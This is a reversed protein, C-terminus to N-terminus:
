RQRILARRIIEQSLGTGRRLADLIIGLNSEVGINFVFPHGDLVAPNHGQLNIEIDADGSVGRDATLSLVEFQFNELAKLMLEVSEGGAHLASAAAPSRFRLVGPAEAALRAHRVLFGDAGVTLPIDGSIVGEASVGQVAVTRFLEALDLREVKVTLEHNPRALDFATESIRYIGGAARFGAQEVFAVLPAGPRLQFSVDIFEIPLAPDLRRITLRQGPPTSPALVDDFVVNADLGDFAIEDITFSLDDLELLAQSWIRGDQWRAAGTTAVSGSADRLWDLAPALDAPQRGDPAFDIRNVQVAGDGSARQLDHRATVTALQSGDALYADAVLSLEDAKRAARGAIRLPALLAPRRLDRLTGLEFSARADQNVGEINLTVSIDELALQHAAIEIGANAIELEGRYPGAPGATGATGSLRVTSPQVRVVLPDGTAQRVHAEFAGATFAVSAAYAASRDARDLSAAGLALRLPTALAVRDDFAAGDIRITGPETLRVALRGGDLRVSTPLRARVPGVVLRDRQIRGLTLDLGGAGTIDDPAGALIGAWHLAAVPLGAITLDRVRLDLEAIALRDVGAARNVTVTGTAAAVIKAKPAFGLEASGDIRVEGGAALPKFGIQFTREATGHLDLSFGGALRDGLEAPLDTARLRDRDLGEVQFSAGNPLTVTIRDDSSVVTLGLRGDLGDIWGPYAVDALDLDLRGALNGRRLWALLRDPTRPWDTGAPLRGTLQLALTGRGATPPRSTVLPWIPAAAGLEANLELTLEPRNRYDALRTGLTVDLAGDGSRLAGTFVVTEPTLELIGHGAGLAAGQVTAAAFDLRAAVSEPIGDRVTFDVAGTLGGLTAEPLNLSAQDIALKGTVSKPDRGSIGLVGQLKGLNSAISLDVAGSFSRNPGPRLEGALDITVPGAPSSAAIRADLVRILPLPPLSDDGNGGATSLLAQLSGLPPGDGTLDAQVRLGIIVVEDIRGARLGALDFAILVGDARLEGATGFGVAALRLHALGLDVVSLTPAPVDLAQLRDILVMEALRARFLYLGAAAIALVVIVAIALIGLRRIM